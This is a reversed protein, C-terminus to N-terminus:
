CLGSSATNDLDIQGTRGNVSIRDGERVRSLLDDGEYEVVAVNKAFWVRALIPGAAMLPDARGVILAAPGGGKAILDLLVMGTYTSGITAPYILVRNRIEKGFLDHHRDQIRDRWWPFINKPKTFSATFNMPLRAILAPGAAQGGFIPKGQFREM